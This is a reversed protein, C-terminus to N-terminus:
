TVVRGCRRSVIISGEKEMRGETTEDTCLHAGSMLVFDFLGDKKGKYM